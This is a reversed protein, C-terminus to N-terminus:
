GWPTPLARTALSRRDFEEQTKIPRLWHEKAMQWSRVLVFRWVGDTVAGLPECVGNQQAEFGVTGCSQIGNVLTSRRYRLRAQAM